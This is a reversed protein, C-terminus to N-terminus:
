KGGFSAFETNNNTNFVPVTETKQPIKPAVVVIPAVPAANVVESSPLKSDKVMLWQGVRTEPVGMAFHVKSNMGLEVCGSVMVMILLLMVSCLMKKVMKIEGDLNVNM